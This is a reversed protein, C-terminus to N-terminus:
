IYNEAKEIEAKENAVTALNTAYLGIKISDKNEKAIEFAKLFYEEAKDHKEDKSYLIAINNLVIMEHKADLEKLAIKYAELYNDLAEVYDLMLYYNAGINNIALFLQKHWQNNEAMTKVETLLELSRAHNKHNMKEVAEVLIKDCEEVTQAKSFVCIM